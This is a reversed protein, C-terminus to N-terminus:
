NVGENNMQFSTGTLDGHRGGWTSSDWNGHERQQHIRIPAHHRLAAQTLRVPKASGASLLFGAAVVVGACLRVRLIRSWEM